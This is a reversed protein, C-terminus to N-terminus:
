VFLFNRFPQLVSVQDLLVENFHRKLRLLGECRADTMDMKSRAAGDALLNHLLLWVQM